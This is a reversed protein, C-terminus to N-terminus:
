SGLTRWSRSRPIEHQDTSNHFATPSRPSYTDVAPPLGSLREINVAIATFVHQLHVKRQGRYRCHRMGHGHAFEHRVM